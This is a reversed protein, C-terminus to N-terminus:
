IVAYRRSRARRHDSSRTTSHTGYRLGFCCSMAAIELMRPIIEDHGLGPAKMGASGNNQRDDWAHCTEVIYVNCSPGIEFPSRHQYSKNHREQAAERKGEQKEDIGQKQTDVLMFYRTYRRMRATPPTSRTDADGAIYLLAHSAVTHRTGSFPYILGSKHM